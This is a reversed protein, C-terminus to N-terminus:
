TTMINGVWVEHVIMKAPFPVRLNVGVGNADLKMGGLYTGNLSGQVLMAPFHVMFIFSPGTEFSFGGLDIM